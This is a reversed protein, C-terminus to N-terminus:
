VRRYRSRVGLSQKVHVQPRGDGNAAATLGVHHLRGDNYQVQHRQPPQPAAAAARGRPPARAGPGGVLEAEMQFPFDYILKGSWSRRGRDCSIDSPYRTLFPFLRLLPRRLERNFAIYIFPNVASNLTMLYIMIALGGSLM